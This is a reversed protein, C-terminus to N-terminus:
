LIQHDVLQTVKEVDIETEDETFVRGGLSHELWWDTDAFLHDLSHAAHLM